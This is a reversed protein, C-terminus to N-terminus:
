ALVSEETLAPRRPAPIAGGKRGSPQHVRALHWVGHYLDRAEDVPEWSQLTYAPDIGAQKLATSLNYAVPSSVELWLDGGCESYYCDITLVHQGGWPINRISPTQASHATRGRSM